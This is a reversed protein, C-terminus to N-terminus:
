SQRSSDRRLPHHTELDICKQNWILPFSFPYREESLDQRGLGAEERRRLSWNGRYPHFRPLAPLRGSASPRRSQNFAPFRLGVCEAVARQASSKSPCPIISMSWQNQHKLKTIQIFLEFKFTFDRLVQLYQATSNGQGCISIDM